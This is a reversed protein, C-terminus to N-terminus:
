RADTESVARLFQSSPIKPDGIIYYYANKESRRKKKQNRPSIVSDKKRWAVGLIKGYNKENLTVVSKQSYANKGVDECHKTYRSHNRECVSEFELREMNSAFYILGGVIPIFILAMVIKKIM